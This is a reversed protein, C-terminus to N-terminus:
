FSNKLCYSAHDKWYVLCIMSQEIRFGGTTEQIIWHLLGIGVWPKCPELHGLGWKKKWRVEWSDSHSWEQRAKNLDINFYWKILSLDERICQYIGQRLEVYGWHPKKKMAGLVMQCIIYEGACRNIKKEGKVLFYIKHSSSSQKRWQTVAQEKHIPQNM